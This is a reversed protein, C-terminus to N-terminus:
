KIEFLEEYDAELTKAINKAPEAGLTGQKLAGNLYARHKGIKLSLTNLNYGKTLILKTFDERDKKFYIRM